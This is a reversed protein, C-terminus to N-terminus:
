AIEAGVTVAIDITQGGVNAASTSDYSGIFFLAHKPSPQKSRLSANVPIGNGKYLDIDAGNVAQTPMYSVPIIRRWLWAYEDGLPDPVAAAATGDIVYDTPAWIMGLGIRARTFTNATTPNIVVNAFGRVSRVTARNLERGSVTELAASIDIPHPQGTPLTNGYDQTIAYSRPMRTRFSRRARSRTVM